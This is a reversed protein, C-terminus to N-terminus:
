AEATSACRTASTSVRVAKPSYTEDTYNGIKEPDLVISHERRGANDYVYTAPIGNVSGISWSYIIATAAAPDVYTGFDVNDLMVGDRMLRRFGDARPIGQAPDIHDERLGDVVIGVVLKPRPSPAQCGIDPQVMSAVLLTALRITISTDTKACSAYIIYIYRASLIMDAAILPWFAEIQPSAPSRGCCVYCFYHWLTLLKM